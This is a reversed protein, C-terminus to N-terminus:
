IVQACESLRCSSGPRAQPCCMQLLVGAHGPGSRGPHLMVMICFTSSCLLHLAACGLMPQQHFWVQRGTQCDCALMHFLWACITTVIGHVEPRQLLNCAAAESHCHLILSRCAATSSLGILCSSPKGMHLMYGGALARAGKVAFLMVCGAM